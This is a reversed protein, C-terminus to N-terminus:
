FANPNKGSSTTFRASPNNPTEVLQLPVANVNITIEGKLTVAVVPRGEEFLDLNLRKIEPCSTQFRL